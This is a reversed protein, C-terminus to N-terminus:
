PGGGADVRAAIMREFRRERIREGEALAEERTGGILVTVAYREDGLPVADECAHGLLQGLPVQEGANLTVRGRPFPVGNWTAPCLDDIPAWGDPMKDTGTV